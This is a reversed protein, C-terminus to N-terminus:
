LIIVCQHSSFQRLLIFDQKFEQNIVSHQSSMVWFISILNTVFGGSRYLLISNTHNVRSLGTRLIKREEDCIRQISHKICPVPIRVTTVAVLM